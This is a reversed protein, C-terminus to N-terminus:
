VDFNHLLLINGRRGIQANDQVHDIFIQIALIVTHRDNQNAVYRKLILVRQLILDSTNSTRNNYWAHLFGLVIEILKKM